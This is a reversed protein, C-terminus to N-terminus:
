FPLEDESNDWENFEAFDYEAVRVGIAHDTLTYKRLM